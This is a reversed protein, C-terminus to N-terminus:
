TSMCASVRKFAVGVATDLACSPSSDSAPLPSLSSASPRAAASSAAASAAAAADADPVTTLSMSSGSAVGGVWATLASRWYEASWMIASRCNAEPVAVM